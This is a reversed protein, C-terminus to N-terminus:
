LARWIKRHESERGCGVCYGGQVVQKEGSEDLKGIDGHPMHQKHPEVQQSHSKEIKRRVFGGKSFLNWHPGRRPSFKGLRALIVKGRGATSEGCQTLGEIRVGLM